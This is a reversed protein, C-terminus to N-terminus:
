FIKKSLMIRVGNMFEKVKFSFLFQDHKTMKVRCDTTCKLFFCVCNLVFHEVKYAGYYLQVFM